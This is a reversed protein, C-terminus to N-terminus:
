RCKAQPILLKKTEGSREAGEALLAFLAHRLRTMAPCGMALLKGLDGWGLAEAFKGPLLGALSAAALDLVEDGIAVGIRPADDGADFVAFPLNQLPFAAHGTASAVWSKAAADHTHDIVSSNRASHSARTM